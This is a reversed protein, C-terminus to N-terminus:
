KEFEEPEVGKIEEDPVAKLGPVDVKLFANIKALGLSSFVLLSDRTSAFKAKYKDGGTYIVLYGSYKGKAIKNIEDTIFEKTIKKKFYDLSKALYYYEEHEKKEDAGIEKAVDLQIPVNKTEKENRLASAVLNITQAAKNPDSLKFSKIDGGVSISIKARGIDSKNDDTGSKEKPFPSLLKQWIWELAFFTSSHMESTRTGKIFEKFKVKQKESVEKLKRNGREHAPYKPSGDPNKGNLVEDDLYEGFNENKRITTALEDIATKTESRDWGNFTAASIQIKLEDKTVEKVEVDGLGEVFLIDVGKGGTKAGKLLFVFTLEGRGLLTKKGGEIESVVDPYKEFIEIAEKISCKNYKQLFEPANKAADLILQIYEPKLGKGEIKDGLHLEIGKKTMQAKGSLIQSLATGESYYPNNTAVKIKDKGPLTKFYEDKLAEEPVGAPANKKREIEEEEKRKQEEKEKKKRDKEAQKEPDLAQTEQPSLAGKEALIENLVAMNEPTDHGGVLGDPSRMAWEALIEDIIKSKDM